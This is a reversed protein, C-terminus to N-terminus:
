CSAQATTPPNELDLAKVCGYYLAAPSTVRYTGQQVPTSAASIFNTTLTEVNSQGPSPAHFGTSATARLALPFRHDELAGPAQPGLTTSGFSSYDEYRGAIGLTLNSAVDAEMDVYGAYSRQGADAGTSIGGFGNSAASHGIIM